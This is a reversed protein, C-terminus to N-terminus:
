RGRQRSAWICPSRPRTRRVRPCRSSSPSCGPTTCPSSRRDRASAAAPTPRGPNEPDVPRGPALGSAAGPQRSVNVVVAAKLATMRAMFANVATLAARNRSGVGPLETFVAKGEVQGADAARLAMADGADIKFVRDATVDFARLRQM